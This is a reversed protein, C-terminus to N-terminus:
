VQQHSMQYVQCPHCLPTQHPILLFQLTGVQGTLLPHNHHQTAAQNGLHNCPLIILQVLYSLLSPHQGNAPLRARQLSVALYLQSSPQGSESPSESPQSSPAASISPSESPSSSPMSSISPQM